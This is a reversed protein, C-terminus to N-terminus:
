GAIIRRSKECKPSQFLRSQCRQDSVSYADYRISEPDHGTPQPFIVVPANGSIATFADVPANLARWEWLWRNLKLETITGVRFEIAHPSPPASTWQDTTLELLCASVPRQRKATSVTASYTGRIGRHVRM